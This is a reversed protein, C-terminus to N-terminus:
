LRSDADWFCTAGFFSQLAMEALTPAPALGAPSATFVNDIREILSNGKPGMIIKVVEILDVHVAAGSQIATM